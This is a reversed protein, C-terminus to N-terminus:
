DAPALDELHFDVRRRGRWEDLKLRGAAHWVPGEGGLLAEGLPGDAARFAIGGIREGTPAALSFRVHAGGVREAYVVRVDNLVFRPEGNGQGFPGAAMLKTVLAETAGAPSLVGDIKLAMADGAAAFQDALAGQLFETLAPIDAEAVTLGGAMAHGGGSPLLGARKADGIATGLDVGPVSRGSGKGVGESVGIVIAPRGYREKVRGAVVGIVGPHWDPGHAILVPVDRNMSEIQACAADLVEAEIERREKNLLDLEAAIEAAEAPDDTSLLRAGLDARGVRGGANIRPGLLFGAHYTGPTTEVGAVDALAKLGTNAWGGMRKLGQAVIARNVTTLPVVDCVTGLAALDIFDFLDPEPTDGFVGRRRGERNLAALLVFTVGAAAMHGCGSKDDARNPNVVAKAPPLEAGMLHHDVVVVDLGIDRAAELAEGAAAGCDVTIVLDAGRSKLVEFAEKSPGYGEAIRDPVYLDLRRGLTRFYRILQAASTGGDVDYDAFVALAQGAEVADWIAAAAADMDAFSSPDPFWDRLKPDLHREADDASIGRSVLLRALLDPIDAARAMDAVAADDAERLRWAKGTVSQDVGLFPPAPSTDTAAAM